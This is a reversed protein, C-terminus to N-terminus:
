QPVITIRTQVTNDSIVAQAALTCRHDKLARSIVGDCLRARETKAALIEQEAKTEPDVVLEESMCGGVHKVLGIGM